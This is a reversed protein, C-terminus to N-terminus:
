LGPVVLREPLVAGVGEDEVVVKARLPLEVQRARVDVPQLVPEFGHDTVEVRAPAESQQREGLHRPHEVAARLAADRAALHPERGTELSTQAHLVCLVERAESVSGGRGTVLACFWGRSGVERDSNSGEGAPVTQRMRKIM